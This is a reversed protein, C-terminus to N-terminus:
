GAVEAAETVMTKGNWKSRYQEPLPVEVQLFFATSCCIYLYVHITTPYTAAFCLLNSSVHPLASVHVSLSVPLSVPQCLSGCAPLSHTSSATSPHVISYAFLCICPHISVCVCASLFRISPHVFLCVCVSLYFSVSVLVFLSLHWILRVFDEGQPIMVNLESSKATVIEAEVSEKGLYVQCGDTKDISVLPVKGM